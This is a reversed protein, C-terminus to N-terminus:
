LMEVGDIAAVRDLDRAYRDSLVARDSDPFETLGLPTRDQAHSRVVEQWEERSLTKGARYQAQLAVLAADTASLNLVDEPETLDEPSLETLLRTLLARSSRRREYPLVVMREPKLIRVMEGVLEPWGREVAMFRPVLEQFHPVENDEARKRWASAYLEDYRRLVFLIQMEADGLGERLCRFRMASAPLFQGQYFHFMRGTVNEESLILARAPDPSFRTLTDRVSGVFRKMPQGRHRPAPLKLKLRGKPVGDRGPYAVDYGARDLVARNDHLCMQFSSSGTRHAGAHLYIRKGM